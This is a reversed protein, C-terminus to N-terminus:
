PALLFNVLQPVALSANQRILEDFQRQIMTTNPNIEITYARGEIKASQVFQAAPYVNGSTGICIFLDCHSLELGIKEMFLPMEHFWVIHPRLNKNQQCCDCINEATLDAQHEFIKGSKVCRIKLLEGHMHIVNKSGAREHLNDVNQTIITVTGTFEKELKALAEHAPNPKIEPKLLGRRRQNYFDYVLKPNRRFAEPTAVDEIAHNEWLGDGERFTKIGSEASIGAGTLIVINRIKAKLEQEM